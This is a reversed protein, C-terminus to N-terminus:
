AYGLSELKDKIEDRGGTPTPDGSFVFSQLEPYNSM